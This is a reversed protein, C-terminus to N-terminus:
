RSFLARKLSSEESGKPYKGAKKVEKLVLDFVKDEDIRDKEFDREIDRLNSLQWNEFDVDNKKAWNTANNKISM